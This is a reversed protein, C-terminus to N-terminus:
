KASKGMSGMWGHSLPLLGLWGAGDMLESPENGITEMAVERSRQQSKGELRGASGRAGM